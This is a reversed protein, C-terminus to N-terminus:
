IINKCFKKSSISINKARERRKKKKCFAIYRYINNLVTVKVKLQTRWDILFFDFWGHLVSLESYEIISFLLFYSIKIFNQTLSSNKEYRKSENKWQALNWFVYRTFEKNVKHLIKELYRFKCEDFTMQLISLMFIKEFRFPM